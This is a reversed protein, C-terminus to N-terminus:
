LSHWQVGGQTLISRVRLPPTGAKVTPVAFAAPRQSAPVSCPISLFQRLGEEGALTYRSRHQEFIRVPTLEALEDLDLQQAFFAKWGLESLTFTKDMIPTYDSYLTDDLFDVDVSGGDILNQRMLWGEIIIPVWIHVIIPAWTTM